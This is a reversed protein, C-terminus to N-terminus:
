RIVMFNVLLNLQIFFFVDNIESMLVYITFIMLLIMKNKNGKDFILLNM